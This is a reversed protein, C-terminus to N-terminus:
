IMMFTKPNKPFVEFFATNYSNKEQSLSYVLGETDGQLYADEPWKKTTEYGCKLKNM